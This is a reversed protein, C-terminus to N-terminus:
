RLYRTPDVPTANERVEFHLKPQTAAGSMGSRAIVQGRSVTDGRAVSLEDAHGYVTVLGDDHRILVTNGYEKLGSGAYIVVGNEAAKVDSGEPVSIDIGDNRVNGDQAGFATIVQGQVPWRLTEVGSTAPAATAVETEASIEQQPEPDRATEAAERMDAAAQSGTQAALDGTEVSATEVPDTAQSADSSPEAASATQSQGGAGLRLTQGLRITDSELGNAAKLDAVSVGSASAIRSLTDGAKVTYTGGSASSSSPTSQSLAAAQENLSRETLAPDVTSATQQQPAPQTQPQASAQATPTQAGGRSYSPIILQQGVSVSRADSINNAKMIEEAPVGYRRSVSYITENDQLTVRPAGVTSWGKPKQQTAAQQAAAPAQPVTGTTLTDSAAAQQSMTPQTNGAPPALTSRQVGSGADSPAPALAYRNNEYDADGPYTQTLPDGTEESGLPQGPRSASQNAAVDARPTPVSATTLRDTGASAGTYFGDQLRM